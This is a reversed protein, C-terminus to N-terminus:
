ESLLSLTVSFGVDLLLVPTRLTWVRSVSPLCPSCHQSAAVEREGRCQWGLCHEAPSFCLCSRPEERTQASAEGLVTIVSGSQEIGEAKHAKLSHGSVQKMAQVKSLTRQHCPIAAAGVGQSGRVWQSGRVGQVGSRQWRQCIMM